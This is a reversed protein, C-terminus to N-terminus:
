ERYMHFVDDCASVVTKKHTVFIIIRDSSINKLSGIIDRETDEDLSSTVEDLLLVPSPHLLARAIALRQMQGGSLGNGGEQLMTDLGAPSELVFRAAAKELVAALEEDTADPKSMKLNERVTGSFLHCQQPVYAFNVRTDATAAYEKGGATRLVIRGGDLPMLALILRILTTKGCGTEGVLATMRGRCFSVSLGDLVKQKGDYSFTVDEADIRELDPLLLERGTLREEPLRELEILRESSTYASIFVPINHLLSLAPTQITNVLQLFATMTGFTILDAQLSYASWGFVLLYSFSFGVSLVINSYLSFLNQRKVKNRYDTQREDLVRAFLMDLRLAKVVGSNQISEQFFLHIRSGAEKISLSLARMKKFYVKSVVLILPFLVLLILALRSDLCYLMVYAGLLKLLLSVTGPITSSVLSIVETIDTSIRNMIDGSHYKQLSMWDAKLLHSYIGARMRNTLRTRFRVSFVSSFAHLMISSFIVIGFLLIVFGLKGEVVGTATDILRKSLMVVSLSLIVDASSVATLIGLPLINKKILRLWYQMVVRMDCFNVNFVM